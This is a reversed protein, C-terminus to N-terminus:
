SLVTNLAVWGTTQGQFRLNVQNTTFVPTGDQFTAARSVRYEFNTGPVAPLCLWDLGNIAVGDNFTGNKEQYSFGSQVLFESGIPAYGTTPDNDTDFFLNAYDPFQGASPDIDGWLTVRFYYYDADNYVYIDKFDAAGANGSPADSTYVPALGTWDDFAGDITIGRTFQGATHSSNGFLDKVGNITVTYVTGWSLPTATNLTVQAPNGSVLVASLVNVGASISYKTRDTATAPDVPETFTVLM